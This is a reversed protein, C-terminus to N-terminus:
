TPVWDNCKEKFLQEQRDKEGLAPVITDAPLMGQATYVDGTETTRLNEQLQRVTAARRADGEEDTRGIVDLESSLADRINSVLTMIDSGRPFLSLYVDHLHRCDQSM